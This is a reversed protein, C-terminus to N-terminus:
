INLHEVTARLKLRFVCRRGVGTADLGAAAAPGAQLECCGSILCWWHEVYNVPGLGSGFLMNTRLARMLASTRSIHELRLPQQSSHVPRV